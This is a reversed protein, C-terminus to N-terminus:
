RRRSALAAAFATQSAISSTFPWDTEKNQNFWIFGTIDPQASLYSILTTIWEPKSGGFETSATEAILIPKGAAIRRLQTLGAAFITAPSRWGSPATRGWNYGDLAVVDVYNSGPYYATLPAAVGGPV